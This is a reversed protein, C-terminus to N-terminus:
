LRLYMEHLLIRDVHTGGETTNFQVQPPVEAGRLHEALQKVSRM